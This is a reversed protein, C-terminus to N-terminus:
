PSSGSLVSTVPPAPGDLVESVVTTLLTDYPSGPADVYIQLAAGERKARAVRYCSPDDGSQSHWVICLRPGDVSWRDGSAADIRSNLFNDTAVFAGDDRFHRYLVYDGRDRNPFSGYRSVWTKGALAAVLAPGALDTGRETQRTATAMSAARREADRRHARASAAGDGYPGCAQGCLAVVAWAALRRVRLRSTM